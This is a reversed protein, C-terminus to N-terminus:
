VADADRRKGRGHISFNTRKGKKVESWLDDDHVQYGVWWGTPVSGPALGMKEVKEPTFMMSEIMDSAHHPEEGNRRHNDGGKRSKQVYTYAAKEIEDASIYDGQLDHVPEGNVEVVSAWGFVQRKDTDMKSIEGEWLIDAEDASKTIEKRRKPGKQGAHYGGALLAGGVLAGGAGSALAARRTIKKANKATAAANKATAPAHQSAAALNASAAEVNSITSKIKRFSGRKSVSINTQDGTRNAQKQTNEALKKLQPAGKRAGMRVLNKKSPALEQVDSKKVKVKKGRKADGHLIKTAMLEGGLGAVELPVLAKAKLPIKKGAKVSRYMDHGGYALGGAGAAAGIGSLGATIARKRRDKHQATSGLDSQDPSMKAILEDAGDGFLIKAVEQYATDHAALAKAIRDM